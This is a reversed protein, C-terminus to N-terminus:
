KYGEGDSATHYQRNLEVSIYKPGTMMAGAKSVPNPLIDALARESVLELV